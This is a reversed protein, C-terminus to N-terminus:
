KGGAERRDLAEIQAIILAAAIVLCRRLGHPKWWKPEWPWTAPLSARGAMLAIEGEDKGQTQLRLWVTARTGYALAAAVLEGRRHQDDHEPTWGEEDIQRQRESLVDIAAQTNLTTLTM